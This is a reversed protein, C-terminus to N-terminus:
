EVEEVGDGVGEVVGNGEGSLALGAGGVQWTALEVGLAVEVGEEGGEVAVDGVAVDEEAAADEGGEVGGGGGVVGGLSFGNSGLGSVEDGSQLDPRGLGSGGRHVGEEGEEM